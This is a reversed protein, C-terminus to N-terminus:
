GDTGGAAERIAEMIAVTWKGEALPVPMRAEEQLARYTEDIQYLHTDFRKESTWSDWLERELVASANGALSWLRTVSEDLSKRARALSSALYDRDAHFVTQTVVDVTITGEDGHLYLLRTPHGGSQLRLSALGGAETVFTAQAADYAISRDYERVLTTIATIDRENRPYGGNLGLYIPHPITEEFEGGALDFVWGGRETRDPRPGGTYILDVGRVPGIRGDAVLQRARRMAPNFQSQHVVSVPVDRRRAIDRLREVEAVTSTVPKEILAAVGAEIATKAVPFHTEVPTCVHVIDLGAAVLMDEVDDYADIGYAAAARAAQAEDRDCVAVLRGRPSRQVASLHRESVAGAGVVAADVPM